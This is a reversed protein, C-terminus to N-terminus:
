GDILDDIVIYRYRGNGHHGTHQQKCSSCGGSTLSMCMRTCAHRGCASYFPLLGDGVKRTQSICFQCAHVQVTEQYTYPPSNHVSCCCRCRCIQATAHDTQREQSLSRSRPMMIAVQGLVHTYENWPQLLGQILQCANQSSKSTKSFHKFGMWCQLITKKPCQHSRLTVRYCAPVLLVTPM